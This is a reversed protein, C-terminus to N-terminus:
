LGESLIRISSKSASHTVGRTSSFNDMYVIGRTLLRPAAARPALLPLAAHVAQGHGAGGGAVGGLGGAPRAAAHGRALVRQGRAGGGGRAAAGRRGRGGRLPPGM